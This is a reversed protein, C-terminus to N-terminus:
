AHPDMLQTYVRLTERATNEWSFSKSRQLGKEVLSQSLTSDSILQNLGETINESKTVDVLLAADAAVEPLSSTQGSLVPTACAMAELLPIGFSERLSPYLFVKAKSILAPMEANPIYGTNQIQDMEAELGAEQLHKRIVERDLDGVMLKYDRGYRHCYEAFAVLTNATNKKPDTNGLFLVYNEPLQYKQTIRELEKEDEVPKFHKSVGNYVAILNETPLDKFYNQITQREYNSVTIIKRARNVLRSVVAKRYLNGFLQYPTYGKGMVNKVEMYIIDHITVVLPVPCFVPATNSTCHLIDLKYKKAMRPLKIQEWIPYAGGFEIIKFNSSEQIVQNDPGENVFIFYENEQDIIQLERILELVVFDMGHKKERFIRQAEIGIRM